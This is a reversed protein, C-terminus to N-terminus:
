RSNGNGNEASLANVREKWEGAQPVPRSTDPLPSKGVKDAFKRSHHGASLHEVQEATDHEARYATVDETKVGLAERRQEYTPHTSVLRRLPNKPGNKGGGNFEGLKELASLLPVADGKMAVAANRDAALEEARSAVAGAAVPAIWQAAELAASATINLPTAPAGLARAVEMRKLFPKAGLHALTAGGIASLWFLKSAQGMNKVHGLEHAAVASLETPNLIQTLDKSFAITPQAAPVAVANALPKKSEWVYAKPPAIGTNECVNQLLGHLEPQTEPTIATIRNAGLMAFRLRTMGSLEQEAGEPKFVMNLRSRNESM